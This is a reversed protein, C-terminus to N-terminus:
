RPEQIITFKQGMVTITGSRSGGDNRDVRYHVPGSGTGSEGNTITIWDADSVAKWTCGFQTTVTFSGNSPNRGEVASPPVFVFTCIAGSQNATFTQNGITVTGTRAGGTNVAVALQVTGPGTGSAGSAVSIWSANSSATWACGAASVSVPVQGGASAVSQQQPSISVSCTGAQNVTFAQGGITVGGSRAGGSNASVSLRVTGNGSGSSGSTVTIWSVGSAATWPCGDGAAVSVEITGGAAAVNATSQGLSVTCAQVQNVTFPQGAVTLSGTRPVNSSAVTFQVPGDRNGNAGSTITIWNVNSVASWACGEGATVNVTGNGGSLPVSQSDPAIAFSCTQGGQTVTAKQGNITLTGSRPAGTGPAVTFSLRGPGNGIAQGNITIWPVDSTATWACGPATQVDIAGPGGAQGISQAAPSLTLGCASSQTVSAAQGAVVLTGTRSQAGTPPVDFTVTGSGSGTAGQTVTIWDVNSAATWPCGAATTVTITASGGSSPLAHTLPAASYSCGEAQTVSFRQGAVLITGTRPEASTALVDFTVAASGKGNAGSRIVIWESDSSATWTCLSSSATVNVTGSGGAKPFRASPERLQMVCGAAAQTFEARQTNLNIAARRTVPDPNAAAVYEVSGDGQGSPSGKITLWTSDSAATWACERATTVTIQGSGGDAPLNPDGPGITVGCRPITAPATATSTSSGCGAALIGLLTTVLAASALRLTRCPSM